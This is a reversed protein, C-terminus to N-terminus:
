PMFAKFGATNINSIIKKYNHTTDPVKTNHWVTEFNNRQWINIAIHKFLTERGSTCSLKDKVYQKFATGEENLQAVNFCASSIVLVDEDLDLLINTYM